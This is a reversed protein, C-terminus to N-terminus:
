LPEIRVRAVGSRLMGIERAAAESLDIDRRTWARPGRDTILVEVSQGTALNVVRARSNLPLTRHAATLAYRDFRDGNATRRGHARAGYWTAMGTASITACDVCAPEEAAPEAPPLQVPARCGALSLLLISGATMVTRRM